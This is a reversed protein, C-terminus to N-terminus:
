IIRGFHTNVHSQVEKQIKERLQSSQDHLHERLENLELKLGELDPHVSQFDFEPINFLMGEKRNKSAGDDFWYHMGEEENTEEVELTVTKKAGKRLIEIEAKEGEDFIGLARSVDRLEKIKKKGIMTIVDGASIGAKEAASGKEVEWVLAGTGEPADFYKALQDNLQRLTMGQSNRSGSFVEFRNMGGPSSAVFVGRAAQKGVVVDMTKKEGKRIVAVAVKTGPKTEAVVKQLDSADSITEEGFQVIIDKEKIGASDAPSKKAVNSVLAGKHGSKLGMSKVIEATVDQIGVGLWGKKSSGEVIRKKMVVTQAGAPVVFGAIMACLVFGFVLRRKVLKEGQYNNTRSPQKPIAREGNSPTGLKTNWLALV